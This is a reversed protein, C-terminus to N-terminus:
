AATRKQLCTLHYGVRQDAHHTMRTGCRHCLVRNHPHACNACVTATPKNTRHACTPVIQIM